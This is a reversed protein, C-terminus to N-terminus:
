IFHVKAQVAAPGMMNETTLIFPKLLQSASDSGGDYDLEHLQLEDDSIDFEMSSLVM